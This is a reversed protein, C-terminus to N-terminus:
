KRIKDLYKGTRDFFYYGVIFELLKFIKNLISEFIESDLIIMEKQVMQFLNFVIYIFIFSSTFAFLPRVLGKVIAIIKYKSEKSQFDIIKGLRSKQYSLDKVEFEAQKEIRVSENELQKLSERNKIELELMIKEHKKDQNDQFIKFGQNIISPLFRALATVIITLM